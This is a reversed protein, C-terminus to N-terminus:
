INVQKMGLLIQRARQLYSMALKKGDKIGFISHNEIWNEGSKLYQLLYDLSEPIKVLRGDELFYVPNSHAFVTLNRPLIQRTDLSTVRGAIWTSEMLQIEVELEARYINRKRRYDELYEWTVVKGNAIIEVKGFPLLSEVKIRARVTKEGSYEITEGSLHNDVSFTLMPANTIFGTGKKVGEIWQDYGAKGEFRVYHRNSGVPITVGMKDTGATIPIKFGANLYQYYLDMGRLPPFNVTSEVAYDWPAWHSPLQTPDDYTMLEVADILGLLFAVASELGPLNSFHAWVNAAGQEHSAEM